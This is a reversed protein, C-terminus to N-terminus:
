PSKEPNAKYWKSQADKIKKPNAKAWEKDYNPNKARFKFRTLRTREKKEDGTLM